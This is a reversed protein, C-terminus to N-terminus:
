MDPWHPVYVTEGTGDITESERVYGEKSAKLGHVLVVVPWGGAETPAYVDLAWEGRDADNGGKSTAYVTDTNISVPPATLLPANPSVEDRSGTIRSEPASPALGTCGPLLLLRLTVLPAITKTM